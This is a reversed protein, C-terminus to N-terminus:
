VMLFKNEEILIDTYNGNEDFKRIILTSDIVKNKISKIIKKFDETYTENKIHIYIKVFECKLKTM